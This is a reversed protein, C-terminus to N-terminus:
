KIIEIPPYLMVATTGDELTVRVNGMLADRVNTVKGIVEPQGYRVIKGRIRKGILLTVDDM